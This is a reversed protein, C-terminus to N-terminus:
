KFTCACELQSRLILAFLGSENVYITGRQVNRFPYGNQADGKYVLESMEKKDESDIHMCIAKLPNSYGLVEALMKGRFWIDDKCKIVSLETKGYKLVKEIISMSYKTNICM